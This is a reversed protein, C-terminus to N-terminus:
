NTASCAVASVRKAGPGHPLFGIIVKRDAKACLMCRDCTMTESRQAPCVVVRRGSPTTLQAPSNPPVVTAVPLGTRALRDAHALGNGSLNITLGATRSARRIAQLNARTVDAPVGPTPIVPKHSYTWGRKGASAQVLQALKAADIRNGVGPLDGAQNMRWRQGEPLSAISQVFSRWPVGREGASVKSWHLKLPGGDAYCGAGYFPCSPPCTSQPSTSVPIPGTKQNSSKLTLHYTTPMHYHPLNLRFRSRVLRGPARRLRVPELAM